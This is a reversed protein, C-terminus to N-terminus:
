KKKKKKSPKKDAGKGAAAEAKAEQAYRDLADDLQKEERGGTLIRFVLTLIGGGVVIGVAVAIFHEV